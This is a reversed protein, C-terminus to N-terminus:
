LIIGTNLCSERFIFIFRFSNFRIKEDNKQEMENWKIQSIENKFYNTTFSFFRHKQTQIQFFLFVTNKDSTNTLYDFNITIITPCKM